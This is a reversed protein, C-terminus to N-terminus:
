TQLADPMPRCTVCSSLFLCVLSTRTIISDVQVTTPQMPLTQLTQVEADDRCLSCCSQVLLGDIGAVGNQDQWVAHLRHGVPVGQERGGRMLCHLHNGPEFRPRRGWHSLEQQVSSCSHPM